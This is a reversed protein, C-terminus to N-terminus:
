HVATYGNEMAYLTAGARTGVDIKAYIHQLHHDVTKPSIGLERAIEKMARGRALSRLVEVERETLTDHRPGPKAVHGAAELM